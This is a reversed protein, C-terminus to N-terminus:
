KDIEKFIVIERDDNTSNTCTILTLLIDTCDIQCGSYYLANAKIFENLENMSDVNFNQLLFPYENEFEGDVIIIAVLEYRRISSRLRLEVYDNDRNDILKELPTFMEKSGKRIYHGYIIINQDNLSCRYDIFPTGKIDYEKEFNRRLYYDNDYSQVVPLNIINSDFVLHGIYDNNKDYFDDWLSYYENNINNYPFIKNDLTKIFAILIIIVTILILLLINRHKM